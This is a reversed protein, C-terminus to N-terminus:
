STTIEATFVIPHSAEVIVVPEMLRNSTSVLGGFELPVSGDLDWKFGQTKISDCRCGIPILGCTPGEGVFKTSTRETTDDGNTEGNSPKHDNYYPMRIGCRTNAPILFACTEDTYLYLQNDFTKSWKYMAQISAMEQDFRGGFAGYVLVRSSVNNCVQLTKDLDNTDQCKDREIQTGLSAYFDRVHPQLSDLDGRIRDPIYKNKRDDDDAGDDGDVDRFATAEYLRNAGGDACIHVSSLDWLRQFLQSPPNSIPSNLIILATKGKLSQDEAVPSEEQQSLGDSLFVSSFTVTVNTCQNDTMVQSVTSSLREVVALRTM